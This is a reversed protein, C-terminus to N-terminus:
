LRRKGSFASYTQYVSIFGAVDANRRVIYGFLIPDRGFMADKLSQETASVSPGLEEYEAL